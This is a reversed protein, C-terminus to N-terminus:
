WSTVLTDNRHKQTKSIPMTSIGKFHLGKTMNLMGCPHTYLATLKTLIVQVQWSFSYIQVQVRLKKKTKVQLSFIPFYLFTLKKKTKVQLSFIPFYLFSLDDVSVKLVNLCVKNTSEVDTIRFLKYAQCSLSIQSAPSKLHKSPSERGRPM